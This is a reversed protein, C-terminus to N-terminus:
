FFIVDLKINATKILVSSALKSKHLIEDVFFLPFDLKGFFSRYFMNYFM